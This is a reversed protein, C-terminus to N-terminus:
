LSFQYYYTSLVLSKYSFSPVRRLTLRRHALNTTFRSISGNHEGVHHTYGLHRPLGGSPCKDMKTNAQWSLKLPTITVPANTWRQVPKGGLKLPTITRCQMNRALHVSIEQLMYVLDWRIPCSHRLSKRTM